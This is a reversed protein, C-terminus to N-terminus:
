GRGRDTVAAGELDGSYLRQVALDYALTRARGGGGAALLACANREVVASRSRGSAGRPRPLVTMPRGYQRRIPPSLDVM